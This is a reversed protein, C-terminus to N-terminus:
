RAAEGRQDVRRRVHLDRALRRVAALGHIEGAAHSGWTTSISMRM